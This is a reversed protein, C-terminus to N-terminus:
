SDHLYSSFHRVLRNSMLAEFEGTLRLYINLTTSLHEHGLLAQLRKWPEPNGNQREFFYTWVAFTHRLCHPVFQPELVTYNKGLDPDCKMATRTLGARLVAARFSAQFTDYSTPRGSNHRASAYNLFLNAPENKARLGRKRAETLSDKRESDIYRLLWELLFNPIEVSRRKNGKGRIRLFSVGYPNGPDEPSLDLIQYKTVRAPEEPRMGAQLCMEAWLRDRMPRSDTAVEGPSPPIPGLEHAVARYQTITMARVMDDPLANDDPMLDSKTVKRTEPSVHPLFVTDLPRGVGSRTQIKDIESQVWGAKWAHQYFSSITELRRNVTRISYPEHTHPSITGLMIDRYDEIDAREIKEWALQRFELFRWWDALDRASAKASNVVYRPGNKRLYKAVLFLLAAEIPRQTEEDVLFPFGGPLACKRLSEAPIHPHSSISVAYVVIANM